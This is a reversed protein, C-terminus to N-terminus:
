LISWCYCLVCMSYKGLCVMNQAILRSLYLLIWTICLVDESLLILHPIQFYKSKFSYSFLAYWFRRFLGLATSLLSIQLAIKIQFSLNWILTRLKWRLFSPFSRISVFTSSLFYYWFDTFSFVLLCYLIDIFGFAPEKLFYFLILWYRALSIMFILSFVCIVLILLSLTLMM